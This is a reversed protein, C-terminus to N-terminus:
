IVLTSLKGRIQRCNVGGILGLPWSGTCRAERLPADFHESHIVYNGYAVFLFCGILRPSDETNVGQETVYPPNQLRQGAAGLWDWFGHRWVMLGSIAFSTASAFSPSWAASHDGSCILVVDALSMGQAVFSPLMVGRLESLFLIGGQPLEDVERFSM